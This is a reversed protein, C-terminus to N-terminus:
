LNDHSSSLNSVLSSHYSYILVRSPYLLTALCICIHYVMYPSPYSSPAGLHFPITTQYLDFMLAGYWFFILFTLPMHRHSHRTQRHSGVSMSPFIITTVVINGLLYFFYVYLTTLLGVSPPWSSYGALINRNEKRM